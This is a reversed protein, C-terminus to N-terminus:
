EGGVWMLIRRFLTEPSCRLAHAILPLEAAQIERRGSEMNAIVNRTVHLRDALEQQSMDSDIRTARVVTRVVRKWHQLEGKNVIFM